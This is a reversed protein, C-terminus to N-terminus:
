GQADLLEESGSERTASWRDKEDGTDMAEITNGEIRGRFLKSKGGAGKNMTLTFTTGNVKGEGLVEGGDGSRVTIKQFKQEVTV